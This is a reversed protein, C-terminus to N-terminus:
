TISLKPGHKKRLVMKLSFSVSTPALQALVEQVEVTPVEVHQIVVAEEEVELIPDVVAGEQQPDVEGTTLKQLLGKQVRGM